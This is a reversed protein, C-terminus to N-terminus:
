SAMMWKRLALFKELDRLWGEAFQPLEECILTKEEGSDISVSREQERRLCSREKKKSSGHLRSTYCNGGSGVCYGDGAFFLVDCKAIWWIDDLFGVFLHNEM